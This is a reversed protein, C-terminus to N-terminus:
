LPLSEEPDLRAHSKPNLAQWLFSLRHTHTNLSVSCFIFLESPQDQVFIPHGLPNITALIQDKGGMMYYLYQSLHGDSGSRRGTSKQGGM